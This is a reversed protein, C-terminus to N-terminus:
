HEIGKLSIYHKKPSKAQIYSVTEKPYDTRIADTSNNWDLNDWDCGTSKSCHIKVNADSLVEYPLWDELPKKANVWLATASWLEMNQVQEGENIEYNRFTISSMPPLYFAKFGKADDGYMTVEVLQGENQEEITGKYLKSNFPQKRDKRAQLKSSTGLSQNAARPLLYWMPAKHNNRIMLKVYVGKVPPLDKDQALIEISFLEAQEKSAQEKKSLKQNMKGKSSFNEEAVDNTESGVSANTPDEANENEAIDETAKEANLKVAPAETATKRNPSCSMVFLLSFLIYITSKSM